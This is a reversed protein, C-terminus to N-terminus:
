IQQNIKLSTTLTDDCFRAYVVVRWLRIQQFKNFKHYVVVVLEELCKSEVPFIVECGLHWEKRGEKAEVVGVVCESVWHDEM